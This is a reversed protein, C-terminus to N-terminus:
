VKQALKQVPETQCARYGPTTYPHAPEMLQKYQGDLLALFLGFVPSYKHLLDQGRLALLNDFFALGQLCCLLLHSFQCALSFVKGGLLQRNQLRKLHNSQGPM